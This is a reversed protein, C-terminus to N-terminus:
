PADDEVIGLENYSGLFDDIYDDDGINDKSKPPDKPVADPQTKLNARGGDKSKLSVPTTSGLVLDKPAEVLMKKQNDNGIFAM